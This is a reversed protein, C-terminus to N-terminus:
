QFDSYETFTVRAGAPGQIWDTKPDPAPDFPDPTRTPLQSSVTCNAPESTPLSVNAMTPTTVAPSTSTSAQPAAPINTASALPAAPTNAAAGGCAALAAGLLLSIMLWIRKM